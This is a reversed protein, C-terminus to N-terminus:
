PLWLACSCLAHPCLARPCLAHPLPRPASPVPASPLAPCHPRRHQTGGGAGPGLSGTSPARQLSCRASLPPRTHPLRWSVPLGPLQGKGNGTHGRGGGWPRRQGSELGGLAPIVVVGVGAALVCVPGAFLRSVDLAESVSGNGVGLAVSAASDMELCLARIRIGPLEGSDGLARGQPPHPLPSPLPCM